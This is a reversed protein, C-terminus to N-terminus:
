NLTVGEKRGHDTVKDFKIDVANYKKIIGDGGSCGAAEIEQAAAIGHRGHQREHETLAVLMADFKKRVDAPMKSPNKHKPLIIDVTVSLKCDGTWRVYWETYAWYGKPGKKDMEKALEALSTSSVPYTKITETVKPRAQAASIGGLGLALGLALVGVDFFSKKLM